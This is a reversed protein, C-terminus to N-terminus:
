FNPDTLSPAKPMQMWHSYYGEQVDGVHVRKWLDGDFALVRDLADGDKLTPKVESVEFYYMQKHLKM